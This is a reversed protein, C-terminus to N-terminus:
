IVDKLSKMFEQRVGEGGIADYKTTIYLESREVGSLRIAEGVSAENGYIRANDLHRYGNQLALLVDGTANRQYLASGVGFAPSPIVGGDNLAYLTHNPFAQPTDAGSGASLLAQAFALVPAFAPLIM